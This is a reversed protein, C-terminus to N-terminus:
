MGAVSALFLVVMMFIVAKAIVAAGHGVVIIAGGSFSCYAM